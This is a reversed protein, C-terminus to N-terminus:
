TPVNKKEMINKNHEHSKKQSAFKVNKIYMRALYTALVAIAVISAAITGFLFIYKMSETPTSSTILDYVVSIDSEKDRSSDVLSMVSENHILEFENQSEFNLAKLQSAM